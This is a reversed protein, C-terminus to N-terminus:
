VVQDSVLMMFILYVVVPLLLGRIETQTLLVLLALHVIPVPPVPTLVCIAIVVTIMIDMRVVVDLLLIKEIPVQHAHYAIQQQIKVLLVPIPVVKAFPQEMM